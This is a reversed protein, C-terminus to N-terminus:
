NVKNTVSNESIGSISIALLLSDGEVNRDLILRLISVHHM